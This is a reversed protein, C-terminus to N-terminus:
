AETATIIINFSFSQITTNEISQSVALSINCAIVQETMNYGERDWAVSIYNSAEAPSWDSTSLSLIIPTNGTNRLYITTTKTDGPHLWGWNIATCRNTCQNDWFAELEIAYVNGTSQITLTKVLYATAGYLTISFCVLSILM